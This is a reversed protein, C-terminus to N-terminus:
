FAKISSQIEIKDPIESNFPPRIARILTAEDMDIQDNNTEPYYRFFLYDKWYKKMRVIESRNEERAYEKARKRIHQKKYTFHCRGIYVIYKEIFPLNIGKLYFMYVGGKDTPLKDIEDSVKGGNYYKIEESWKAEDAIPNTEDIRNEIWHNPNHYYTIGYLKDEDHLNLFANVRM